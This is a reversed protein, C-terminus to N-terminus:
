RSRRTSPRRRLVRSRRARPRSPSRAAGGDRSSSSRACGARAAPKTWTAGARPPIGASPRGTPRRCRRRRPPLRREPEVLVRVAVRGHHPRRVTRRHVCGPDRPLHPPANGPKREAGLPAGGHRRHAPRSRRGLGPRPEGVRRPDVADVAHRRCRVPRSGGDLLLSGVTTSAARAATSAASVYGDTSSTPMRSASALPNASNSAPQPSRPTSQLAGSFRM